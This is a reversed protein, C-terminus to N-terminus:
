INGINFRDASNRLGYKTVVVSEIEIGFVELSASQVVIILSTSDLEQCNQLMLVFIRRVDSPVGM